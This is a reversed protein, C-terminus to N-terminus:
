RAPTDTRTYIVFGSTSSKVERAKMADSVSVRLSDLLWVASLADQAEPALSRFRAALSSDRLEGLATQPLLRSISGSMYGAYIDQLMDAVPAPLNKPVVFVGMEIDVNRQEPFSVMPRLVLAEGPTAPWVAAERPYRYTNSVLGNQGRANAFVVIGDRGSLFPRDIRVNTITVYTVRGNQEVQSDVPAYRLGAAVAVVFLAALAVVAPAILRSHVFPKMM